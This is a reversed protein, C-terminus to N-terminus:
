NLSVSKGNCYVSNTHLKKILGNNTLLPMENQNCHNETAINELILNDIETDNCVYITDIPTNYEKRHLNEIKLSKIYLLSDIFILALSDDEIKEDEKAFKKPGFVRWKHGDPNTRYGGCYREAKSAYVNKITIADYLGKSNTPYNRTIGICYQYYTGFIDSIHINKVICNAALLRVASHCDEAYIGSVEINSIEGCSGEDANLAVLDDYTAGKINKITGFRCNGCLHVGDMNGPDPNGDNFDFYINEVTFYETKDMVIAFNAPDKITLSSLTLNTVNYFLMGFGSYYKIDFNRSALPNEAQEKNNFNWIGGKVEINRCNFDPSYENVYYWFPSDARKQFLDKTKNKLMVCNSNKALKIEAFRPLILSFNSPLELPKSILYCVKPAPLLVQSIGSDILEQIAATDDNIGDGFLTHKTNFSDTM